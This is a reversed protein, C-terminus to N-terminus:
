ITHKVLFCYIISFDLLKNSSCLEHRYNCPFREYTNIMGWLMLIDGYKHGHQLTKAACKEFKVVNSHEFLRSSYCLCKGVIFAFSRRVYCSFNWIKENFIFVLIQCQFFIWNSKFLPTGYKPYEIFSGAKPGRVGYRAPPEAPTAMRVSTFLWKHVRTIKM